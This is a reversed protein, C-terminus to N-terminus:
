QRDISSRSLTTLTQRVPDMAASLSARSAFSRARGVTMFLLLQDRQRRTRSDGLQGAVQQEPALTPM